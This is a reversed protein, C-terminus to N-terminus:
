LVVFVPLTSCFQHFSANKLSLMNNFYLSSPAVFYWTWFSQMFEFIFILITIDSVLRNIYKLFSTYNQM